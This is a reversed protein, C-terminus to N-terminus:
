AVDCASGYCGCAIGTPNQNQGFIITITDGRYTKSNLVLVGGNVYCVNGNLNGVQLGVIQKGHIPVVWPASAGNTGIAPGMIEPASGVFVIGPDTYNYFLLSMCFSAPTFLILSCALFRSVM